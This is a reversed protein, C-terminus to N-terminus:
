KKRLNEKSYIINGCVGDDRQFRENCKKAIFAHQGMFEFPIDDGKGAMVDDIVAAVNDMIDSGTEMEHHSLYVHDYKGATLNRVRFLNEKYVELPSSDSDFLFTSNNCADGLILTRLECLLFVMCGPTHGPLAYAQIHIGGLDFTMGDELPLFQKDPMPPVFDNESLESFRSGMCAQLYGKRDELGCMRRYIDRDQKNLCVTDFEPAGTAHDVHGHTLLVTLPKDTLWSVLDKLRGVGVCTDILAAKEDGEVLYLLEGTLSRILTLRENIKETTYFAMEAGEM